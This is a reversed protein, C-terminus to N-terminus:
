SCPLPTWRSTADSPLGMWVHPAVCLFRIRPTTYGPRTPVIQEFTHVAEYQCSRVGLWCLTSMAAWGGYLQASRNQNFSEERGYHLHPYRSSYHGNEKSALLEQGSTGRQLV